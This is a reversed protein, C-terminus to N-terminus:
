HKIPAKPHHHVSGQSQKALGNGWCKQQNMKALMLRRNAVKTVMIAYVRLYDVIQANAVFSDFYPCFQVCLGRFVLGM